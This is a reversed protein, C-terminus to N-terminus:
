LQEESRYSETFNPSPMGPPSVITEPSMSSPTQHFSSSHSHMPQNFMLPSLPLPSLVPRHAPTDWLPFPMPTTSPAGSCPTGEAPDFPQAPQGPHRVINGRHQSGAQSPTSSMPHYPDPPMVQPNSPPNMFAPATWNTTPMPISPDRSSVMRGSGNRALPAEPRAFVVDDTLISTQAVRAPDSPKAYVMLPSAPRARVPAVPGTLVSRYQSPIFSMCQDIESIASSYASYSPQSGRGLDQSSEWVSSSPVAAVIGPQEYRRQGRPINPM